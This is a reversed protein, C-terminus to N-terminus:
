KVRRSISDIKFSLYCGGMIVFMFLVAGLLYVDRTYTSALLLIISGAGTLFFVLVELIKRITEKM